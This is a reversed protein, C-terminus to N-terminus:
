NSNKLQECCLNAISIYNEPSLEEPRLHSDIRSDEFVRSWNHIKGLKGDALKACAKLMKRRHGIFLSVVESLMKFDRVKAIKKKNRVFSVMASDIQPMPWFVTPKLPREIKTDGAAALLISLSGYDKNGPTATMRQAVEKQVTVYMCDAVVPGTVLKIMVPCAVSYPLNSVLMIRGSYQQRASTLADVVTSDFTNKNELVDTTIVEVNSENSLNSKTIEALVSEIEVAIVKAAKKVLEETLSGTGCGVELVIDNDHIRATDILLRMINLDILFNQGRRQNPNMGASALFNQIQQKTHM